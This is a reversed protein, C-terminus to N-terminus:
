GAEMQGLILSNFVPENIPMQKEKMLELIKSAGDIDGSKCYKQILRQYTIRNPLIGRKSLEDLIEM